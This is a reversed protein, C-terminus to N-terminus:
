QRYRMMLSRISARGGIPIKEIFGSHARSQKQHGSSGPNAASADPTVNIIQMAARKPQGAVVPLAEIMKGDASGHLIQPQAREM